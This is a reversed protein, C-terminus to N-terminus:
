SSHCSGRGEIHFALTVSPPCMFLVCLPSNFHNINLLGLQAGLWYDDDIALWTLSGDEIIWGLWAGFHSCGWSVDCPVSSDSQQDPGLWLIKFCLLISTSLKNCWLIFSFYWSGNCRSGCVHRNNLRKIDWTKWRCFSSWSKYVGCFHALSVHEYTHPM